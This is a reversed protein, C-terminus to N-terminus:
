QAQGVSAITKIANADQKLGMSQYNKKMLHYAKQKSEQQETHAISQKLREQSATYAGTSRYYVAIQYYHDSLHQNIKSQMALSQKFYPSSPQNETLQSLTQSAKQLPSIDTSDGKSYVKQSLWGPSSKSMLAHAKIYLIYDTNKEYPYLNLYQDATDVAANYEGAQWEAHVLEMLYVRAQSSSPYDSVLTRLPELSQAYAGSKLKKSVQTRLNVENEAYAQENIQNKSVQQCGTLAIAALVVNIVKKMGM